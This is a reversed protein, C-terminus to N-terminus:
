KSGRKAHEAAFKPFTRVILAYCERAYRGSPGPTGFNALSLSLARDLIQDLTETLDRELPLFHWCKHEAHPAVLRYKGAPLDCDREVYVAGEPLQERLEPAGFVFDGDKVEALPLPESLGLYVREADLRALRVMIQQM